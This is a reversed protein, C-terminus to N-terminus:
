RVRRARIMGYAASTSVTFTGLAVLYVTQSSSVNIRYPPIVDNFTLGGSVFAPQSFDVFRGVTTNLTDTATGLSGIYRTYSTTAAPHHYVIGSVDWDGATLVISTVTKAAGSTLAVESGSTIVSEIYEGVSGAAANDGSVTGVINPTSITPSTGFVLAGTGTEGTVASALNASSPTALFTAVGAGLGSVGTSIPLGTANTLTASTPTGLVPTVLTPSTARVYAGTGTPGVGGNNITTTGASLTGINNASGNITIPNSYGSTQIRGEANNAVANYVWYLQLNRGSQGAAISTDTTTSGVSLRNVIGPNHDVNGVALSTGTAAGIVPTVLTPTNERVVAGTGTPTTAWAGTLTGTSTVPSGSVTFDSPLALAVSSVGDQWEVDYDTNSAKGMKQGTTGGPPMAYVTGGDVITELDQLRVPSSSGLPAPLNLIQESNMDLPATMQNPSTGDRSLTNELATEILANNANLTNQATTTDQLNGVDNLTLKM